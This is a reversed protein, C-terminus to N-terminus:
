DCSYPFVGLFIPDSSVTRAVREEEYAFDYQLTVWKCNKIGKILAVEIAKDIFSDSYSMESLLVRLNTLKYDICNGEQNSLEYYGVGCLDQLVDLEEPDNSADNLGVWISVVGDREFGQDYYYDDDSYDRLAM